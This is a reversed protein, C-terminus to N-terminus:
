PGPSKKNEDTPQINYMGHAGSRHGGARARWSADCGGSCGRLQAGGDSGGSWWAMRIREAQGGGGKGNVRNSGLGRSHVAVLSHYTWDKQGWIGPRRRQEQEEKGGGLGDVQWDTRKEASKM